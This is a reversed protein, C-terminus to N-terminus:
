FTYPRVVDCVLIVLMETPPFNDLSTMFIAAMKVEATISLEIDVTVRGNQVWSSGIYTDLGIYRIQMNHLDAGMIVSSQIIPEHTQMQTGSYFLWTDLCM